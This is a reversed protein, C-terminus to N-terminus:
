ALNFLWIDWGMRDMRQDRLPPTNPPLDVRAPRERPPSPARPPPQVPLQVRPQVPEPRKAPTRRTSASGPIEAPPLASPASASAPGPQSQTATPSDATLTSESSGRVHVTINAASDLSRLFPQPSPAGTRDHLVVTRASPALPSRDRTHTRGRASSRRPSRGRTSPPPSSRMWTSADWVSSASAGAPAVDRSSRSRSSAQSRRRRSSSPPAPQEPRQSSSSRWSRSPSKEPSSESM